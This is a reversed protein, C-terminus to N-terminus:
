GYIAALASDIDHYRFEFGAEQLAAPVVRQGSLLLEDAMEGVALRMVGAPVPLAPLTRFHSRMAACFERSTVPTPATLNFPGQLSPQQLLFQIAAVVDRRHVWSMWQNGSGLWNAIGFRFPRAMEQLAGGDNDLVVGLRLLCTRVGIAEASSAIQEWQRCLDSSFSPVPRADEGLFKDRHPGYYGVASASLLMKPPTKWGAMLEVLAATTELRSTLLEQKYRNSWRKGAMSAGALNIVADFPQDRLQALSQIYHIGNTEGERQRTYVTLQHGGAQLAPLLATGIFGTGGTVLTQM